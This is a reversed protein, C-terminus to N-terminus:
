FPTTNSFYSVGTQIDYIFHSMFQGTESGYPAATYYRTCAGTTKMVSTSTPNANTYEHGTLVPTGGKWFTATATLPGVSVSPTLTQSVGWIAYLDVMIYRTSPSLARLAAIDLLISEYGPSENAIDGGWYIYGTGFEPYRNIVTPERYGVPLIQGVDPSRIIAKFDLDRGPSAWAMKITVTDPSNVTVSNPVNSGDPDTTTPANFTFAFYTMSLYMNTSVSAALARAQKEPSYYTYYAKLKYKKNPTLLGDTDTVFDTWSNVGMGGSFNANIVDGTAPDVIYVYVKIFDTDEDFDPGRSGNCVSNEVNWTIKFLTRGERTTMIDDDIIQIADAVDASTTMQMSNNGGGGSACISAIGASNTLTNALQNLAVPNNTFGNAAALATASQDQAVLVTNASKPIIGTKEDRKTYILGSTSYVSDDYEMATISVSIVDTDDEQISTIRFKKYSYGYLANTVTIIDGAKLGIATYDSTFKILTDLRNQKLEVTAMFQAQIPDNILNTDILLTNDIEDPYRKDTPIEVDIQDTKDSLDKHPYSITVKNYLDMIGNSSVSIGGILNSDNFDFVSQGAEKITFSWKGASIDYTIWAGCATFLKTLNSMCSQGTDVVGNISFDYM